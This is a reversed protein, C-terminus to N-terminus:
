RAFRLERDVAQSSSTSPVRSRVAIAFDCYSCRRACFPVHVYVHRPPVRFSVRTAGDDADGVHARREAITEVLGAMELGTVAALARSPALETRETLVDLPTPGPQLALWVIREDGHLTPAVNRLRSVPERMRMLSLADSPALIVHAGDQLLRNAGVCQPADIPGPVAASTAVSTWRM